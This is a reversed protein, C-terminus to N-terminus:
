RRGQKTDESGALSNRSVLSPIQLIHEAAGRGEIRSILARTAVQGLERGSQDISALNVLGLAATSSNDYGIVALDEPVRVGMEMALSLLTIADLDSWCFM